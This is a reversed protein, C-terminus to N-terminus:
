RDRLQRARLQERMVDFSDHQIFGVRVNLERGRWTGFDADASAGSRWPLGSVIPSNVEVALPAATPAVVIATATLVAAIAALPSGRGSRTRAAMGAVRRHCHNSMSM